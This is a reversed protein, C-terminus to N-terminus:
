GPNREVFYSYTSARLLWSLAGTVFCYLSAALLCVWLTAGPREMWPMSFQKKGDPYPGLIYLAAGALSLLMTSIQVIRASLTGGFVSTGRDFGTCASAVVPIALLVDAGAEFRVRVVHDGSPNM